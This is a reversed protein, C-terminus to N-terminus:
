SKPKGGGGGPHRDAIHKRGGLKSLGGLALEEQSKRESIEKNRTRLSSVRDSIERLSLNETVTKTIFRGNSDVAYSGDPNTVYQLVEVNIQVSDESDKRGSANAESVQTLTRKFDSLNAKSANVIPAFEFVLNGNKDLERGLDSYQSVVNDVKNLRTKLEIDKASFAHDIMIQDLLQQNKALAERKVDEPIHPNSNIAKMTQVIENYDMEKGLDCSVFNGSSDKKVGFAGSVKVTKDYGHLYLSKCEEILKQNHVIAKNIEADSISGDNNERIYRIMEKIDNANMGDTSDVIELKGTTANRVLRKAGTVRVKSDDKMVRDEVRDIVSKIAEKYANDRKIVPDHMENIRRQRDASVKELGQLQQNIMQTEFDYQLALKAKREEYLSPAGINNRLRNDLGMGLRRLGSSQDYEPTGYWQQNSMEYEYAYGSGKLGKRWGNVIGGLAAMRKQGPTSEKGRVEEGALRAKKAWHYGMFAGLAKSNNVGNYMARGPATIPDKINKWGEKVNGWRKSLSFFGGESKFGLIDLILKPAQKAFVLLGFVIFLKLVAATLPQEATTFGFLTGDDLAMNVVSFMYVMFFMVVLRILVEAYCAITEKAWKKLTDAKGPIISFLAPIPAIIELFALKVARLGLDFAFVVLLYGVFIGVILSVFFHYKIDGSAVYEVTDSFASIDDNYKSALEAYEYDIQASDSADSALYYSSQFVSTTFEGSAQTISYSNSGGIIVKGVVNNEIISNQIGYAFEFISPTFIIVFLAVVINIVMQKASTTGKFANDPNVIVRILTYALVFLMVVSLISYLRTTLGHVIDSSMIRTDALYMFVKFMAGIISYIILDISLLIKYFYKVPDLGLIKLPNFLINM